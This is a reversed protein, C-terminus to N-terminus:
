AEGQLLFCCFLKCGRRVFAPDAHIVNEAGAHHFQATAMQETAVTDSIVTSPMDTLPRHLLELTRTSIAIRLKRRLCNALHEPVLAIFSPLPQQGAACQVRHSVYNVTGFALSGDNGVFCVIKSLAFTKIGKARQTHVVVVGAIGAYGILLPQLQQFLPRFLPFGVRRTVGFCQPLIHQPHHLQLRNASHRKDAPHAGFTACWDLLTCAAVLHSTGDTSDVKAVAAPVLNRSVTVKARLADQKVTDHGFSSQRRWPRHPSHSSLNSDSVAHAVIHFAAWLALMTIQLKIAVVVNAAPVALSTKAEETVSGNALAFAMKKGLATRLM